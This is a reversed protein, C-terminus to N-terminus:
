PPLCGRGEVEGREPPDFPAKAHGRLRLNVPAQVQRCGCGAGQVQVQVQV